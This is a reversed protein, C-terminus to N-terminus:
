VNVAVAVTSRSGPTAPVTVHDDFLLATALTPEVVPTIVATATPLATIVAVDVASVDFFPVNDTVTTGCGTTNLENLTVGPLTFRPGPAVCPKVVICLTAAVHELGVTVYAFEDLL